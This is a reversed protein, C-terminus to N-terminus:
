YEKTDIEITVNDFRRQMDLAEKITREVGEDSISIVENGLWGDYIYRYQRMAFWLGPCTADTTLIQKAFTYHYGFTRYDATITIRMGCKGSPLIMKMKEGNEYRACERETYFERGDEAVYVVQEYWQEPVIREPVLERRKEVKM